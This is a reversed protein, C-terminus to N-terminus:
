LVYVFNNLDKQADILTHKKRITEFIGMTRFSM